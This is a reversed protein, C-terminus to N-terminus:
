TREISESSSDARRGPPHDAVLRAINEGHCIAITTVFPLRRGLEARLQKLPVPKRIVFTGAAGINVCELHKLQAALQSPRLARHGGVNVGRLFVVLSM